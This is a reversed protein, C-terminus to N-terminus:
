MYSNKHNLITQCPTFSFFFKTLPFKNAILSSLENIISTIFCHRNLLQLAYSFTGFLSQHPVIVPYIKEKKVFCYELRKQFYHTGKLFRKPCSFLIKRHGLIDKEICLFNDLRLNQFNQFQGHTYHM